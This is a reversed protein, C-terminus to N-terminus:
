KPVVTQNLPLVKDVVGFFTKHNDTCASPDKLDFPFVNIDILRDNRYEVSTALFFPKRYFVVVENEVIFHDSLM